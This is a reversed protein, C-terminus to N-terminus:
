GINKSLQFLDVLYRIQNLKLISSKVQFTINGCPPILLAVSVIYMSYENTWSEESSRFIHRVLPFVSMRINKNTKGGSMGFPTSKKRQCTIKKNNNEELM